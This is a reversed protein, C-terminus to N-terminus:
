DSFICFPVQISCFFILVIILVNSIRMKIAAQEAGGVRGVEAECDVCVCAGCAFSVRGAVSGGAVDSFTPVGPEM